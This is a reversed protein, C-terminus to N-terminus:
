NVQEQTLPSPEYRKLDELTQIPYTTVWRTRGLIVSRDDIKGEDSAAFSRGFGRCLDIGLERYVKVMGRSLNEDDGAFHRYIGHNDIYDWIPVRDGEQFNLSMLIRDEVTKDLMQEDLDTKLTDM